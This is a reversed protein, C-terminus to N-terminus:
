SVHNILFRNSTGREIAKKTMQKTHERLTNDARKLKLLQVDDRDTSFELKIQKIVERM